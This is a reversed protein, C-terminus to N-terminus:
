LKLNSLPSETCLLCYHVFFLLIGVVHVHVHGCTLNPHSVPTWAYWYMGSYHGSSIGVSRSDVFIVDKHDGCTYM